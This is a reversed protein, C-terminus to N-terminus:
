AEGQAGSSLPAASTAAPGRETADVPSPAKAVLSGAWRDHLGQNTPSRVTTWLLLAYWLPAALWILSALAPVASALAAAAGFPPFLLFWRSVARPRSLRAGDGGHVEMRLLRQGPTAGTRTWSLAFYAVSIVTGLLANLVVLAGNVSAAEAASAASADFRVSPGFVTLLLTAGLVVAITVVVVDVLCATCRTVVGAPVSGAPGSTM